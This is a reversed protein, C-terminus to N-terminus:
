TEVRTEPTRHLNTQTSKERPGVVLQAVARLLGWDKRIERLVLRQVERPRGVKRIVQTAPTATARRLRLQAWPTARRM